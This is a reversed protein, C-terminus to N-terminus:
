DEEIHKNLAIKIREFEESILYLSESLQQIIGDQEFRDELAQLRDAQKHFEMTLDLLRQSNGDSRRRAYALEDQLRRDEYTEM